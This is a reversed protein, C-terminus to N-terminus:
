AKRASAINTCKMVLVTMDGQWVSRNTTAWKLAELSAEKDAATEPDQAHHTGLKTIKHKIM